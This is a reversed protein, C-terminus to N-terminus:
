LRSRWDDLGRFRYTRGSHLPAYVPTGDPLKGVQVAVGAFDPEDDGGGVWARFPRTVARAAARLPGRPVEGESM